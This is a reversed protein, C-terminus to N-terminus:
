YKVTKERRIQWDAVSYFRDSANTFQGSRYGELTGRVVFLFRPQYLAIAPVDATWADLFPGYKVKRLEANTRTRGAELSLDAVKSTYESLNLRSRLRPDTQSSHWFAFVDPDPGLSIGYLLVDYDHQIIAGTQVDEEPQLVAEVQVGVSAWQKQLEQAVTAYESISQSVLRLTLKQGDKERMGSINKVWGTSDLLREAEASDFPLQIKTPDYTFHSKLFPSDSSVLNYGIKQRLAETNTARLLAKRVTVDSLAPTSNKLFLMVQGSLPTSFTQVTNDDQADDRLTELGVMASIEQKKFSELMSDEDRFTRLTIGDIMPVKGYYMTNKELTVKEQREVISDGLVEVKNFRFLGTGVPNVSNFPVNRLDVPSIDGLLHKPIIGNTMSFPFSSLTNPLTFVVTYDDKAEATIASWSNFLPSKVEPNKIREYTFLVDSSTFPAGDQWRINDKLHVTYVTGDTNAEYSTALDPELTGEPSLKFLGSFVLRSVSSDVDNVAFLPNATTFSGIMGERYVGGSAPVLELYFSDLSKVQWIAGLGVFSVLLVWSFVFRRVGKLHGVRRFVHKDLMDDAQVSIDEVQHRQKRVKRRLRMRFRHYSRKANEVM